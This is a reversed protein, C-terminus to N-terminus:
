KSQMLWQSRLSLSQLIDQVRCSRSELQSLPERDHLRVSGDMGGRRIAHQSIEAWGQRVLGVEVEPPLPRQGIGRQICDCGAPFANLLQAREGRIDPRVHACFHVVGACLQRPDAADGRMTQSQTFVHRAAAHQREPSQRDTFAIVKEDAVAFM